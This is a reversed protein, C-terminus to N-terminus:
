IRVPGTAGAIRPVVVREHAELPVDVVLVERARHGHLHPPATRAAVVLRGDIRAQRGIRRDGAVVRLIRVVAERAVLAEHKRGVAAVLTEGADVVARHAPEWAALARCE